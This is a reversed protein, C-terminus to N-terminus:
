ASASTLCPPPANEQLTSSVGIITFVRLKLAKLHHKGSPHPYGFLFSVGQPVGTTPYHMVQHWHLRHTKKIAGNKQVVLPVIHGNGRVGTLEVCNQGEFM